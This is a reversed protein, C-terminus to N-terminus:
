SFKENKESSIIREKISNLDKKYIFVPYIRIYKSIIKGICEDSNRSGNFRLLIKLFSCCFFGLKKKM